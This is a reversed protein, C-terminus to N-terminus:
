FSNHVKLVCSVLLEKGAEFDARLQAGLEGEPVKLDERLDGNDAM